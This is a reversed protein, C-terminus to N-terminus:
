NKSLRDVYPHSCPVREDYNAVSHRGIWIDTSAARGNFAAAQTRGLDLLQYGIAPPQYSVARVGLEKIRYIKRTVGNCEISQVTEDLYLLVFSKLRRQVSYKALQSIQLEKTELSKLSFSPPPPYGM